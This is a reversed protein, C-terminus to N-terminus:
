IHDIFKSIVEDTVIGKPPHVDEARFTSMVVARCLPCTFGKCGSIDKKGRITFMVGGANLSADPLEIKRSRMFEVFCPSACITHGCPRFVAIETHGCGCTTGMIKDTLCVACGSKWNRKSGLTALFSFDDLAPDALDGIRSKVLDLAAQSIMKRLQIPPFLFPPHADRVADYLGRRRMSPVVKDGFLFEPDSIVFVMEDLIGLRIATQRNYVRHSGGGPTPVIASGDSEWKISGDAPGAAM